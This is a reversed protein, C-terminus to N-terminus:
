SNNSQDDSILKYPLAFIVITGTEGKNQNKKDIIEFYFEQKLSQSTLHLRQATISLGASTHGLETKSTASKEKGIGNDEIRCILTDNKWKLEVKILGETNTSRDFAHKICNEVYPQIIMAPISLKDIQIASDINIQYSFLEKFRLKELELYLTITEVEKELSIFESRSSDLNLRMLRAFKSIYRTALKKDEVMIFTQISNLSNFIFHPNMQNLLAQQRYSLMANVMMNKRKISEIRYYFIIAVLIIAIIFLLLLFWWTKWFPPIISFTYTAPTSSWVGDENQALVEYTYTGQPLSLFEVYTSNTNQWEDNLGKLRYKYLLTGRKKYALGIYNIKIPFQDYNIENEQDAKEGSTIVSEIYIKPTNHNLNASLPNFYFLYKKTTAWVYKETLAINSIENNPLGNEVSYNRISYEDESFDIKSIGKNTGLWVVNGKIALCNITNSSLGKTINIYEIKNKEIIAIGKGITTVIMKGNELEGIGSIRECLIPDNPFAKTCITDKLYYLGTYDGVWWKGNKDIYLVDSRISLTKYFLNEKTDFSLINHNGCGYLKNKYNILHRTYGKQNIFIPKEAKTIVATIGSSSVTLSNNLLGMSYIYNLSDPTVNINWKQQLGNPTMKYVLGNSFSIFVSDGKESNEMATLTYKRPFNFFPYDLSPIYFIGSNLSSLWIGKEHDEFICTIIEANLYTIFNKSKMTENPAYRRVGGTKYSVWLCSDSDEYIRVIEQETSLLESENNKNVELTHGAAYLIFSNNKRRTGSINIQKFNNKLFSESFILKGEKYFSVVIDEASTVTKSYLYFFNNTASGIFTRGKPLPPTLDTLKGDKTIHIIGNSLLGITVNNNKDCEFSRVIYGKNQTLLNNYKYPVIKGNEYYCLRGSIAHFWIRGLEDEYLSLVSNDVLGENTTFNKFTYGDFRSVGRDTAIWIFGKKDQIIDYSESSPLGDTTTYNYSTPQQGFIVNLWFSFLFILIIRKAIM